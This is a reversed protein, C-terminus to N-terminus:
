THYKLSLQFRSTFNWVPWRELKQIHRIAEEKRWDKFYWICKGFNDLSHVELSKSVTTFPLGKSLPTVDDHFSMQCIYLKRWARKFISPVVTETKRGELMCFKHAMKRKNVRQKVFVRKWTSKNLIFIKYLISFSQNM